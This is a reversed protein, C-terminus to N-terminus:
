CIMNDLTYQLTLLIRLPIKKKTAAIEIQIFFIKRPCKTETSFHMFKEYCCAFIVKRNLKYLHNSWYINDYKSNYIYSYRFWHRRMSSNWQLCIKHMLFIRFYNIHYMLLINITMVFYNFTAMNYWFLQGKQKTKVFFTQM